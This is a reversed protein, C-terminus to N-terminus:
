GWFTRRRTPGFQALISQTDQWPRPVIGLLAIHGTWPFRELSRLDPAAKARLPNPHLYRVLELLDPEEEVVISTYRNPFLHGVRLRRHNFNVVDRLVSRSPVDSPPPRHTRYRGLRWPSLGGATATGCAM